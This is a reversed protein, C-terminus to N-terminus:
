SSFLRSIDNYLAFAMLLVLVGFGLRQGFELIRESLPSGKIAEATHYLLHGGDLLPIPLLNLVGLSISILALFKMYAIVGMRASQGAYDAITVPGSLNRWSMAGTVMRGMMRLSFASTEWTLAVAKGLAEHLPYRVSVLLHSRAEASLPAAAVGIQGIPKGQDLAKTPVVSLALVQGQREVEVGLPRGPSARVAAVLDRWDTLRKGQVTLIRDGVQLGAAAAASGEAVKGLVPAVPPHYPSLGTRALPDSEPEDMTLQGLDMVRDAIEGRDNMVELRHEGSKGLNQLVQWRLQQWSAVPAGDFKLVTEGDQFGALAAQSQAAPAAVIPRMEEVGYVFLGCYIAIALLLNALPGAVVIISRKFLSQRNFARSVEEAPVEGEREDLMKVYGGLPFAALAWETGDAGLRRSLIPKGFGVCFRLVKVGCLRAALFHGFEHVVILIGLALLFAGLYFPANM